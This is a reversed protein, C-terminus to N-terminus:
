SIRSEVSLHTPPHLTWLGGDGQTVGEQSYLYHGTGNRHRISSTNREMRRVHVVYQLVLQVDERMINYLGQIVRIVRTSPCYSLSTNKRGTASLRTTTTQVIVDM